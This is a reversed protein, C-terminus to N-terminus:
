LEKFINKIDEITKAETLRKRTGSANEIGKSFFQAQQRIGAVFDLGYKKSLTIYRFLDKKKINPKQLNIRKGTRFFEEFEKFIRPNGMSARGIMVADCYDNELYFRAQTPERIDGNGILPINVKKKAEKISEWDAKGSYGQRKTRGHITIAKVGINELEKALGAIDIKKNFGLRLKVSVPLSVSDVVSRVIDKLKKTDKLLASGSGTNIIDKAPCGANIDIIDCKDLKELRRAAEKMNTPESGFIQMVIPREKEQTQFIALGDIKERIIAEASVMETWLLGCSNEKCLERFAINTIGAMPALFFPNNTKVNGIKVKQQM